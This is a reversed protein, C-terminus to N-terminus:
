ERMCDVRAFVNTCKLFILTLFKQGFDNFGGYDVYNMRFFKAGFNTNMNSVRFIRRGDKSISSFFELVHNGFKSFYFFIEFSSFEIKIIQDYKEYFSTAFSFYFPVIPM